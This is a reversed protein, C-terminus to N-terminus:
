SDYLSNNEHTSIKTFIRDVPRSSAMETACCKAANGFVIVTCSTCKCTADNGTEVALKKQMNSAALPSQSRPLVCM